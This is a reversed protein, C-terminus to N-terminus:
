GGNQLTNIQARTLARHWIRLNKICGYFGFFLLNAPTGANIPVSLATVFTDDIYMTAMNQKDVVITVRMVKNATYANPAIIGGSERYFRVRNGFTRLLCWQTGGDLSFIDRYPPTNDSLELSLDFSYTFDIGTQIGPVNNRVPITLREGERRYGTHQILSTSFPNSEVQLAMITIQSDPTRPELRIHMLIPSATTIKRSIRVIGSPYYTYTFNNEEPRAPWFYKYGGTAGSLWMVWKVDSSTTKSDIYFSVTDGANAATSNFIIANDASATSTYKCTFMNFGSITVPTVTGASAGALWAPARTPDGYTNSTTGELVLGNAGFRPENVGFTALSGSKDVITAESGRIFTAYEGDLDTLSDAGMQVKKDGFGTIMKLNNNLPLWVDPLPVPESTKSIAIM